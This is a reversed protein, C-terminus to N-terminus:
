VHAVKAVSAAAVGAAAGIIDWATSQPFGLAWFITGLAAVGAVAGTFAIRGAALKKDLPMERWVKGLKPVHKMFQTAFITM